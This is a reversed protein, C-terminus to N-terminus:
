LLTPEVQIAENQQYLMGGRQLVLDTSGPGRGFVSSTRARQFFRVCYMFFVNKSESLLASGDRSTAEKVRVGGGGGGDNELTWRPRSSARRPMKCAMYMSWVGLVKARCSAM